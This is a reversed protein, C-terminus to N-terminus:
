QSVNANECAFELRNMLMKLEIEYHLFEDRSIESKQYAKIIFAMLRNCKVYAYLIEKPLDNKSSIEAVSLHKNVQLITDLINENLSYVEANLTIKKEPKFAIKGVNFTLLNLETFQNTNM